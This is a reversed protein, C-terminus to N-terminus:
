PILADAVRCDDLWEVIKLKELKKLAEILVTYEFGLMDSLAEVEMGQKGAKALEIAILRASRDIQRRFKGTLLDAQLSQSIQKSNKHLQDLRNSAETNYIRHKEKTRIRSDEM